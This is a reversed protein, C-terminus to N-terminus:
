GAGLLAHVQRLLAEPTFPKALVAEAVAAGYRQALVGPPYGSILLVKLDPHRARLCAALTPGSLQPLVVDALLVDVPQEQALRLAESASGAALVTYGQRQLVARVLQRVEADDEVLLIRGAGRPLPAAQPAPSSAADPAARPLYVTVTTGQGPASRVALLGRHQRVIQAVLTLGLGTGHAKTSFFPTFLQAQVAADMGCGTDAVALKVAPGRQPAETAVEAFDANATHIALRGGEPMADCANRVLNLLVQALAAPDGCVEGLDPALCTELSIAEGLLAQLLRSFDAILRNLNVAQRPQGRGCALLQRALAAAQQAARLVAELEARRPASGRQLLLESYGGIVTLLNNLEHLVGGAVRGLTALGQLQQWATATLTVEEAGADQRSATM